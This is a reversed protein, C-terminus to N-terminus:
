LHHISLIRYTYLRLRLVDFLLSAQRFDDRIQQNAKQIQIYTAQYEVAQCLLGTLYARRPM